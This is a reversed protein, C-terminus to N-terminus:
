YGSARLTLKIRLGYTMGVAIIYYAPLEQLMLYETQFRDRQRKMFLEHTGLGDPKTYWLLMDNAEDQTERKDDLYIYPSIVTNGLDTTVSQGLATDYWYMYSSTNTSWAYTIRGSQDFTFSAHTLGPINALVYVEATTLATLILDYTNVDWHLRWTQYTLGQTTDEVDLPGPEYSTIPHAPVGEPLIYNGPVYETSMRGQPIAM